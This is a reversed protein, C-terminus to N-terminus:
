SATDLSTPAPSSAAAAMLDSGTRYRAPAPTPVHGAQDLLPLTERIANGISSRCVGLLSALVDMTCLHRQYLIALLVREGNSIKQHFVGGRASPQRAGGRRQYGLREAQAAQLPALQRTLDHLEPRTLGTLAPHSLQGIVTARAPRLDSDAFTLLATAPPSGPRPRQRTM